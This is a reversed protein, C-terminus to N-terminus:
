DVRFHAGLSKKRRLAAAVVLKGVTVANKSVFSRPKLKQLTKQAAMLGRKERIIGVNKWMLNRVLPLIKLDEQLDFVYNPIKAEATKIEIVKGAKGVALGFVVAEALSNSALRNGGHIGTDAVEGVAFLNKLNTESRLNTVVGGCAYHAVPFIPILDKALNFGAKKVEKWILPFRAELFKADARTFDLYVKGNKMEEFIARSVIDRPALEAAPHYAPLFREGRSNRLVAGEGRLSESLLTLRTQKGVLATPHFQVFELDRLKAGARYAAAIGDGVSVKPNTTKAYLQGFGGTALITQGSALVFIKKGTKLIGGVCVKKEMALDLLTANTLIRINKRKKVEAALVKEISEGTSDRTNWVRSHSHAAERTPNKRFPVGLKTLWDVAKPANEVLFKVAAKNNIGCGATLTDAFHEAFSDWRFNRVAAIGAQAYRSSSELLNSKTAIVVSGKESLKLAATLGAIGSGIILFNTQNM